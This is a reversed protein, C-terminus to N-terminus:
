KSYAANGSTTVKAPPNIKILDATCNFIYKEAKISIIGSDATFGKNGEIQIGDGMTSELTMVTATDGAALPLVTFNKARICDNASKITINANQEIEINFYSESEVQTGNIGPVLTVSKTDIGRGASIIELTLNKVTLKSECKVADSDTTNRTDIVLRGHGRLELTCNSEIANGKGSVTLKNETLDKASIYVKPVENIVEGNEGAIAAVKNKVQICDKDSNTISVGALKVETKATANIDITFNTRKGVIEFDVIGEPHPSLDLKDNIDTTNTSSKGFSAYNSNSVTEKEIDIYCTTDLRYDDCRKCHYRRFGDEDTVYDLSYDHGLAPVIDKKTKEDVFGCVTCIDATFGEETCTPAVTKEELIHDTGAAKETITKSSEDVYGCVSCVNITYGDDTCNAPVSKVEYPHPAFSTYNGVYKHGCKTCTYTTYGKSTCTPATVKGNDYKHEKIKSNFSDGCLKCKYVTYSEFKDTAPVTSAAYIHTTLDKEGVVKYTKKCYKCVNSKIDAQVCSAKRIITWSSSPEHATVAKKKASFAGYVKKKKNKKFARVKYFYTKGVKLKKATYSNKKVTALKKYKGNKLDSVYVQYGAVGKQKKWKLTVRNCKPAAKVSKVKAPKKVKSATLASVSYENSGAFAVSSAGCLATLMVVAMIIVSLVKKYM